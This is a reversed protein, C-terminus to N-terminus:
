KVLSVNGKKIIPDATGTVSANLYYAYIGANLAKGKYTGDWCFAPDTSEFVKEGWRDFIYLQFVTICQAGYVCLEDNAHDGNPSFANPFFLEGCDLKKVHIDVCQSDICGATTGYVCYTFDGTATPSVIISTATSANDWVYGAAGSATLTVSQGLTITDNAAFTMGVIPMPNVVVSVTTTNTCGGADTVTVSYIGSSAVTGPSIVPNQLTSTFGGPGTWSYTAGGSSSLNVIWGACLPSNVSATATPGNTNTVIVTNTTTCSNADTVTCTYTGAALNSATVGTGGSPAWSYTYGPTGGSAAVTATGTTGGNCLVPTSVATATLLPPQTLTVTATTSCGNA